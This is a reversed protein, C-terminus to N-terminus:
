GGYCGAVMTGTHCGVEVGIQGMMGEVQGAMRDQNSALLSVLEVRLKATVPVDLIEKAMNADGMLIAKNYHMYHEATPFYIDPFDPDEFGEPYWKSLFGYPEEKKSFYIVPGLETRDHHKSNAM